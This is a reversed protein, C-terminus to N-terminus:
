GVTATAERSPWQWLLDSVMMIKDTVRHAYQLNIIGTNAVQAVAIHREGTHRVAAGVGSKLQQSLYFIEGGASLSPTIAQFYNVGPKTHPPTHHHQQRHAQTPQCPQDTISPSPPGTRTTCQEARCNGMMGKGRVARLWVAGGTEGWREREREREACFLSEGYFGPNGLKLQANWDSGRVDLDAMVQSQTQGGESALQVHVKGACWDSFDRRLRGSLRGESTVRGLAFWKEHIVNAGFEYTGVSTKLAQKANPAPLEASGMFLSHTIFFNQNLPRTIEFRMGEFLDPRLAM